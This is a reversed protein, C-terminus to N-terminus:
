GSRIKIINEMLKIVYNFYLIADKRWKLNNINLNLFKSILQAYGKQLCTCFIGGIHLLCKHCHCSFDLPSHTWWCRSSICRPLSFDDIWTCRNFCLTTTTTLTKLCGHIWHSANMKWCNTFIWASQSWNVPPLHTYFIFNFDVQVFPKTLYFKTKASRNRKKRNSWFLIKSKELKIKERFQVTYM